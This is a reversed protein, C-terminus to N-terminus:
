LESVMGGGFGGGRNLQDYKDTFKELRLLNHIALNCPSHTKLDCCASPKGPM